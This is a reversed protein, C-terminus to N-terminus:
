SLFAILVLIANNYARCSVLTGPLLNYSGDEEGHAEDDSRPVMYLTFVIAAILLIFQLWAHGRVSGSHDIYKGTLLTIGVTALAAVLLPLSQFLLAGRASLSQSTPVKAGALTVAARGGHSITLWAAFLVSSAIGPELPQVVYLKYGPLPGGLTVAYGLAVFFAIMVPTLCSPDSRKTLSLRNILVGMVVAVLALLICIHDQKGASTIGLGLLLLLVSASFRTTTASHAFAASPPLFSLLGLNFPVALLSIM